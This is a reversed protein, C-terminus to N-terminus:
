LVSTDHVYVRSLTGKHVEISKVFRSGKAEYFQQASKQTEGTVIRISGTGRARFEQLLARFLAGGVGLGQSTSRVCFNLIEPEPLDDSQKSKPYLLTELIRKIRAPSLLKPVLVAMASFGGRRAFGKYVQGTDMAGVIFGLMSEGDMAAFAFAEETDCLYAYLKTLFPGGLSSLFGEHIESKHIEAMQVFSGQPGDGGVRVVEYAM